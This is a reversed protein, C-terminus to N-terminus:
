FTQTAVCALTIKKEKQQLFKNQEESVLVDAKM